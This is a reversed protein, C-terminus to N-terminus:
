PAKEDISSNVFHQDLLGPVGQTSQDLAVTLGQSSRDLIHPLSGPSLQGVLDLWLEEESPGSSLDSWQGRTVVRHGVKAGLLTVKTSLIGQCRKVADIVAGGSIGFVVIAPSTLLLPALELLGTNECAKRGAWPVCYRADVGSADAIIQRRIGQRGWPVGQTMQLFVAYTNERFVREWMYVKLSSRIRAIALEGEVVM